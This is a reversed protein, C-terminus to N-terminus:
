FGEPKLPVPTPEAEEMAPAAIPEEVFGGDTTIFNSLNEVGELLYEGKETRVIWTPSRTIQKYKEPLSSIFHTDAGFVSLKLMVDAAAALEGVHMLFVHGGYLQRSELLEALTELEAVMHQEDFANVILGISLVPQTEFGALMGSKVDSRVAPKGQGGPAPQHKGLGRMSQKKVDAAKSGPAVEKHNKGANPVEVSDLPSRAFEHEYFTGPRSDDDAQASPIFFLLLFLILTRWSVRLVAKVCFCIQVM